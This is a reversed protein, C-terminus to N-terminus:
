KWAFHHVKKFGSLWPEKNVSCRLVMRIFGMNSSQFRFPVYFLCFLWISSCIKHSHRGCFITLCLIVQSDPNFKRLILINCGSCPRRYGYQCSNCMVLFLTLKNLMNTMSKRNRNSNARAILMTAFSNTYRKRSMLHMKQNGEALQSRVKPAPSAQSSSYTDYIFLIM